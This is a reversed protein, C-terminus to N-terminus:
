RKLVEYSQIGILNETFKNCQLNWVGFVYMRITKDAKIQLRILIWFMSIDGWWDM